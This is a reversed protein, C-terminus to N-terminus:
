SVYAKFSLTTYCPVGTPLRLYEDDDIEIIRPISLAHSMSKHNHVYHRAIIKNGEIHYWLIFFKQMFERASENSFYISIRKVTYFGM